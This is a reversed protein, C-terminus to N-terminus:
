LLRRELTEPQQLSETCGQGEAGAGCEADRGPEIQDDGKQDDGNNQVDGDLVMQTLRIDDDDTVHGVVNM